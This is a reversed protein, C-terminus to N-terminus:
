RKQMITEQQNENCGGVREIQVQLFEKCTVATLPTLCWRQVGSLMAVGNETFGYPLYKIDSGRGGNLIGIPM